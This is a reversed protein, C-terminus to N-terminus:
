TTPALRRPRGNHFFGKNSRFQDNFTYNNKTRSGKSVGNLFVEFVNGSRTLTSSQSADLWLQADPIAGSIVADAGITGYVFGHADRV